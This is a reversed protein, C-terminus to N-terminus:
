VRRYRWYLAFFIASVCMGYASGLILPFQHIELGFVLGFIYGIMQLYWMGLSVGRVHKVKYTVYPQPLLCLMFAVQSIMGWTNM